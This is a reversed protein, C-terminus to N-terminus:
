RGYPSRQKARLTKRKHTQLQERQRKATRDTVPDAGGGMETMAMLKAETLLLPFMNSDLDPVFTDNHPEFTPEKYVLARTKSARLTSDITSVYADFVIYDNDFSTYYKPKYTNLVRVYTGGPRTLVSTFAATRRDTLAIFDEPELWSIEEYEFTGDTSNDYWVKSVERVNTPYKFHTPYVSDSLSTLTLTERTSALNKNSVLTFYADEILSSVQMAELTDGVSNVEDAGLSILIKQTLDLLTQKAM